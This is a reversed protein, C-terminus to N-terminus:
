NQYITDILLNFTYKIKIYILENTCYYNMFMYKKASIM